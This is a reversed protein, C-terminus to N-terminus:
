VLMQQCLGAVMKETLTFKGLMFGYVMVHGRVPRHHVLILDRRDLSKSSGVGPSLQVACSRGLQYGVAVRAASVLGLMTFLVVTCCVTSIIHCVISYFYHVHM